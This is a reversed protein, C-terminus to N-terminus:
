GVCSLWDTAWGPSLGRGHTALSRQSGLSYRENNQRRAAKGAVFFSLFVQANYSEARTPTTRCATSM